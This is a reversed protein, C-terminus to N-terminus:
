LLHHYPPIHTHPNVKKRDVIYWKKTKEDCYAIDGTHWYGDRFDKKNTEDNRYYGKTVTPGRVCLEGRVGYDTIDKGSEDVLKVDLNPLFRGVSGSTDGEGYLFISAICSTETAGWVQSFNCDKALLAQYRSQPHPDLPAAGCHAIRVSKLNYKERLPSMIAMIVLPPVMAGDTIKYKEMCQFWLELDFKSAVYGQEGSRLPTCFASPATAAHFLPLMYLRRAKFPRPRYEFVLTHQSIFNKHSLMVAKPLGTTGSSFLLAALTNEALKADNFRVWDEEGHQFLDDWTAYGPPVDQGYTNFILINSKELKCEEAAALVPQVVEPAVLVWRVAATKLHHALEFPKYATNTAAFVGGAAV